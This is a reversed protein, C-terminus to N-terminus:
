SHVTPCPEVPICTCPYACLYACPYTHRLLPMGGLLGLIGGTQLGRVPAELLGTLGQWCLSFLRLWTIMSWLSQYISYQRHILM